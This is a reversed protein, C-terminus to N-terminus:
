PRPRRPPRGARPGRGAARRCAGDSPSRCGRRPRPRPIARSAAVYPTSSTITCGTPPAYASSDTRVARERTLGRERQQRSAPTCAPACARRRVARSAVRASSRPAHPQVHRQALPPVVDHPRDPVVQDQAHHPVGIGRTFRPPPRRAVDASSATRRVPVGRQAAGRTTAASGPRGPRQQRGRIGPTAATPRRAAPGPGGQGVVQGAEQGASWPHAGSTAASTTRERGRSRGLGPQLLHPLILAQRPSRRRRPGARARDLSDPRSGRWRGCPVQHEAVVVHPVVM